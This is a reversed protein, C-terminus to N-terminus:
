SSSIMTTKNSEWSCLGDSVYYLLYTFLMVHTEPVVVISEYWLLDYTSFSVFSIKSLGHLNPCLSTRVMDLKTLCLPFPMPM